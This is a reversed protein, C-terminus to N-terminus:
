SHLLVLQTGPPLRHIRIFFASLILNMMRPTLAYSQRPMRKNRFGVVFCVSGTLSRCASLTPSSPLPGCRVCPFYDLPLSQWRRGDSTPPCCASSPHCFLFYSPFPCIFTPHMAEYFRTGSLLNAGDAREFSGQAPGTARLLRPPFSM